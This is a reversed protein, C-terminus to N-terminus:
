KVIVTAIEADASACSLDNARLDLLALEISSALNDLVEERTRGQGNAGPVEPCHAILWQPDDDREIIATFVGRPTRVTAGVPERERKVVHSPRTTDRRSVAVTAQEAGPVLDARLHDRYSDLWEEINVALDNLAEERSSGHGGASPVEECFALYCPEDLMDEDLMVWAHFTQKM